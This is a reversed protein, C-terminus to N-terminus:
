SSIKGPPCFGSCPETEELSGNCDNSSCQRDRKRQGKKGCQALCTTWPTWQTTYSGSAVVPCPPVNEITCQGKITDVEISSTGCKKGRYKRQQLIKRTRVQEFDPLDERLYGSVEGFCDPCTSWSTWEAWVCDVSPM